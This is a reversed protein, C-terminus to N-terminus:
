PVPADHFSPNELRAIAAQAEEWAAHDCAERLRERLTELGVKGEASVFLADPHQERLAQLREPEL